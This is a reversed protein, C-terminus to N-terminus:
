FPSVEKARQGFGTDCLACNWHWVGQANDLSLGLSGSREKPTKSIRKKEEQRFVGDRKGRDELEEKLAELEPWGFEQISM